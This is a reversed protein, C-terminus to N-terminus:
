GSKTNSRLAEERTSIEDIRDIVLSVLARDFSLHDALLLLGDPHRVRATALLAPLEIAVQNGLNLFYPVAISNHINRTFLRDIAELVHPRHLHTFCVQVTAFGATARLQRAVAYIPQNARAEPCGHAIILLATPCLRHMPQWAAGEGFDRRHSHYTIFPHAHLYDAELARQLLLKGVAPHDGLPRTVRLQLHPFLGRASNFLVALDDRLTRGFTLFYPVVIVEHAGGAAHRSLAELFTPRSLSIFAPSATLGARSQSVHSALRVLDRGAGPHLSGHGIIVVSRPAKGVSATSAEGSLQPIQQILSMGGQTELIDLTCM